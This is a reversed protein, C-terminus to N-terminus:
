AILFGEGVVLRNALFGMCVSLCVLLGRDCIQFVCSRGVIDLLSIGLVLVLDLLVFALVLNRVCLYLFDLFIFVM